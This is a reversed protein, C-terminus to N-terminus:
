QRRRPRVLSFLSGVANAVIGLVSYIIGYILASDNFFLFMPLLFCILPALAWLFSWGEKMGDWAAVDITILPLILFLIALWSSKAGDWTGTPHTISLTRTIGLLIAPLILYAAFLVAIRIWTSKTAWRM